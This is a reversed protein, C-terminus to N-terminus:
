TQKIFVGLYDLFVIFETMRGLFVQFVSLVPDLMLQLSERVLLQGFLRLFDFLITNSWDV